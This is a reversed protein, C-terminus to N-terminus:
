TLRQISYRIVKVGGNDSNGRSQVLVDAGCKNCTRRIDIGVDLFRIDPDSLDVYHSCFFKKFWNILKM